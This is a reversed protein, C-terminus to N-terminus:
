KIRIIQGIQLKTDDKVDPNLRKLEEVSVGTEQSIKEFSDGAMVEVSNGKNDNSTDSSASETIKENAKNSDKKTGKNNEKKGNNSDNNPTQPPQISKNKIGETSIISSVSPKTPDNNVSNSSETTSAEADANLESPNNEYTISEESKISDLNMQSDHTNNWWIGGFGLLVIVSCISGLIIRKRKVSKKAPTQNIPASIPNCLTNGREESAISGGSLVQALAVTCNDSGGAKLASEILAVICDDLDVQHRSVISEIINDRIMGNLGDSCLLVIDEDCLQIPNILCDPEANGSVDSLSRTIVNSDPYDFADYETIVGKDVLTQVYSHDKSIQKLGHKPNYLYARSDGVWSVYLVGNYIWAIVITTGMGKHEPNVKAANKINRDAQKIATKMYKEISFRTKLVDDTIKEPQFYERITDIAIQSAVEGANMGGMGDAVVLLCGKNGLHFPTNSVWNMESSTLDQALQFNDENNSRLLGVDTKGAIRLTIENM